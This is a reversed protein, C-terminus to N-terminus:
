PASTRARSNAWDRPYSSRPKWNRMLVLPLVSTNFIRGEPEGATDEAINSPISVASRRIQAALGSQEAPPFDRTKVVCAEATSMAVRWVELDRYSAVVAVNARRDKHVEQM